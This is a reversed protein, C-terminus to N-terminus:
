APIVWPQLIGSLEEYSFPFLWPTDALTGAPFELTLGDEDLYLYETSFCRIFASEEPAATDTNEPWTDVAQAYLTRPLDAESVLFLEGASLEAGTAPDFFQSRCITSKMMRNYPYEAPYSLHTVFNWLRDTDLTCWTSQEIQYCSFDRGSSQADAWDASATDVWTELDLDLGHYWIQDCVANVATLDAGGWDSPAPFNWTFSLIEEEGGEGPFLRYPPMRAGDPARFSLKESDSTFSSFDTEQPLSGSDGQCGALCIGLLLLSCLMVVRRMM